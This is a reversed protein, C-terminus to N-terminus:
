KVVQVKFGTGTPVVIVDEQATPQAMNLRAELEDLRREEYSRGLKITVKAGYIGVGNNIDRGAYVSWTTRKTDLVRVEGIIETRDELGKGQPGQPGTISKGDQGDSGNLGDVGDTGDNYDIGKIPTYGDQGDFYDANKVPSYGDKGSEGTAGTDGKEGKLGLESPDTWIGISDKGHNEGTAVFIYGANGTNDSQVGGAYGIGVSLSLVLVTLGIVKKM